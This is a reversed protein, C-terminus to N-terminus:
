EPWNMTWRIRALEIEGGNNECGAYDLRPFISDAGLFRVLERTSFWVFKTLNFIVKVFLCHPSGLKALNNNTLNHLRQSLYNQKCKPIGTIEM